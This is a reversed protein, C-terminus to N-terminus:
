ELWLAREPTGPTEKQGELSFGQYGGLPQYFLEKGGNDVSTM